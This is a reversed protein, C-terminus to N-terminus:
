NQIEPRIGRVKVHRIVRGRVHRIVRGKARHVARLNANQVMRRRTERVAVPVRSLSQRRFCVRRIVAEDPNRHVPIPIQGECVPSWVRRRCASRRFVPRNSVRVCSRFSM